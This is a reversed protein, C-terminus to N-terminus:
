YVGGMDPMYIEFPITIHTSRNAAKNIILLRALFVCFDVLSTM